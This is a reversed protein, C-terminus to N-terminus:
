INDLKVTKKLLLLVNIKNQFVHLFARKVSADSPLPTQRLFINRLFDPVDALSETEHVVKVNKVPGDFRFIDHQGM